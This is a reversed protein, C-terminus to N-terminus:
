ERPIGHKNEDNHEHYAMAKGARVRANITLGMGDACPTERNFSARGKESIKHQASENHCVTTLADCATPQTRTPLM